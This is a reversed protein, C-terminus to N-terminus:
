RNVKIFTNVIMHNPATELDNSVINLTHSHTGSSNTNVSSSLPVYQTSTGRIHPGNSTIGGGDMTISHSHGGASSVTSPNFSGSSTRHYRETGTPADGYLDKRADVRGLNGSRLFQGRCDPATNYSLLIAYDTGTIDRGDALIWKNGNEAIFQAETLFSQKVDGISSSFSNIPDVWTSGDCVLIAGTEEVIIVRNKVDAAPLAAQSFHELQARKLQSNVQM